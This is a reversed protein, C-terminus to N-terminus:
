RIIITDDVCAMRAPKFNQPHLLQLVTSQFSLIVATLQFQVYVWRTKRGKKMITLYKQKESNGAHLRLFTM